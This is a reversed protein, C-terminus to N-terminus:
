VKTTCIKWDPIVDFYYNYLVYFIRFYQNESVNEETGVIKDKYPLIRTLLFGYERM